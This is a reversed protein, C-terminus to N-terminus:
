VEPEVITEEWKPVNVSIGLDTYEFFIPVTAENKGNVSINNEAMYTKLDLKYVSEGSKNKIEIKVPNINDFRLVQFFCEYLGSEQNKVTQPYYTTGFPQTSQMQMDYEPLLNHAEVTPIDKTPNKFISSDIYVKLNIHAGSFPINETLKDNDAIAITHQGYYIHDMTPVYTGKPFNPHHIRKEAISKNGTIETNEFANAWCIVSYTGADLTLETGRSISLKQKDITQTLIHEGNSNFVLVTVQDIMKTFMSADNTDGTYSFTLNVRGPCDLQYDKICGTFFLTIFSLILYIGKPKKM